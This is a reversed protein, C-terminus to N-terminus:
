GWRALVARELHEALSPELSTLWHLMRPNLIACRKRQVHVHRHGRHLECVDIQMLDSGIWGYNSQVHFTDETIGKRWIGEIFLLLQDLMGRGAVLDGRNVTAALREGFSEARRQIVFQSVTLVHNDPAITLRVPTGGQVQVRVLASEARLRRWALVCSRLAQQALWAATGLADGPYPSWPAQALDIGWDAFSAQIQAPTRFLKVVYRGDGSAYATM